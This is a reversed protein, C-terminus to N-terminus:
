KGGSQTTVFIISNFWQLKKGINAYVGVSSGKEEQRKGRV